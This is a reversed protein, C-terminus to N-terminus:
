KLRGREHRRSRRMEIARHLSGPSSVLFQAGDIEARTMDIAYRVSNFHTDHQIALRQLFTTALAIPHDLFFVIAQEGVGLQSQSSESGTTLGEIWSILDTVRLYIGRGAAAIYPFHRLTDFIGHGKLCRENGRRRGSRM